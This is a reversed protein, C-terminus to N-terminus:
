GDEGGQILNLGVIGRFKNERAEFPQKLSELLAARLEEPLEPSSSVVKLFEDRVKVEGVDKSSLNKFYGWVRSQIESLSDLTIREKGNNARDLLLLTECVILKEWVAGNAKWEEFAGQWLNNSGFELNLSDLLQAYLEERTSPTYSKLGSRRRYM